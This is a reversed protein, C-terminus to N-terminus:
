IHVYMVPLSGTVNKVFSKINLVANRNIYQIEFCFKLSKLPSCLMHSESVGGGGGGRRMCVNMLYQYLDTICM